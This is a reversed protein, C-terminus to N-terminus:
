PNHFHEIIHRGIIYDQSENEFNFLNDGEGIIDAQTKLGDKESDIGIAGKEKANGCGIDLGKGKIIKKFINNDGYEEVMGEYPIYKNLYTILM